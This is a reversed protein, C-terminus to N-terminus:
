AFLLLLCYLRVLVLFILVLLVLVLLFLLSSLLRVVFFAGLLCQFWPNRRNTGTLTISGFLGKLPQSFEAFVGENMRPSFSILDGMGVLDVHPVEFLDNLVQVLHFPVSLVTVKIQLLDAIGYGEFDLFLYNGWGLSRYPFTHCTSWDEHDYRRSGFRKPDKNCM